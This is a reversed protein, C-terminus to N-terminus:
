FQGYLDYKPYGSHSYTHILFSKHDRCGWIFLCPLLLDKHPDKDIAIYPLWRTIGVIPNACFSYISNQKAMDRSLQVNEQSDDTVQAFWPLELAKTLQPLLILIFIALKYRGSSRKAASPLGNPSAWSLLLM